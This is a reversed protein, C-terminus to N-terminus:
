AAGAGEADFWVTDQTRVFTLSHLSVMNTQVANKKVNPLASDLGIEVM